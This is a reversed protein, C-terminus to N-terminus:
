SGEKEWASRANAEIESDLEHMRRRMADVIEPNSSALNTQEGVDVSLDFLM